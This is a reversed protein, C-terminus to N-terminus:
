VKSKNSSNNNIFLWLYNNRWYNTDQNSDIKETPTAGM